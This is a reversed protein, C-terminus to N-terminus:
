VLASDIRLDVLEYHADESTTMAIGVHPESADDKAEVAGTTSSGTTVVDGATVAEDMLVACPGGTQVWGYYSKTIAVVPVGTPMDNQDAASEVVGHWPNKLLCVNSESIAGATDITDKLTITLNGTATSQAPHGEVPYARGAGTDSIVVLWGDKYQDATAATGGLTVTVERDGVAPASAFSMNQHNDTETPAVVLKGRTLDSSSGAQCYRFVRGDPTQAVEGVQFEQTSSTETFASPSLKLM